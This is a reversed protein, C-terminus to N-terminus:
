NRRGDLDAEKTIKERSYRLLSWFAVQEKDLRIWEKFLM